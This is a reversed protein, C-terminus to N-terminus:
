GVIKLNPQVNDYKGPKSELNAGIHKKATTATEFKQWHKVLSEITCDVDPWSARYNAYRKRIEHETAGHVKLDRVARGLRSKESKTKPKFNFLDCLTDWVPDRKRSEPLNKIRKEIVEKNRESKRPAVPTYIPASRKPIPASRSKAQTRVKPASRSKTQARLISASCALKYKDTLTYRNTQRGIGPDKTIWGHQILRKTCKEVTGNTLGAIESMRRIGPWAVDTGSMRAFGAILSLILKDSPNLTKDSMITDSFQYFSM